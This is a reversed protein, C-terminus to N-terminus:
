REATQFGGKTWCEKCIACYGHPTNVFFAGCDDTFDEIKNGCDMACDHEGDLIGHLYKSM